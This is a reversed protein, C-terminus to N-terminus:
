AMNLNPDSKGFRKGRLKEAGNHSLTKSHDHEEVDRDAHNQKAISSVTNASRVRHGVSRPGKSRGNNDENIGHRTNGACVQVWSNGDADRDYLFNGKLTANCVDECLHPSRIKPCTDGLCKSWISSVCWPVMELLSYVLVLGHQCFDHTSKAKYPNDHGSDVRATARFDDVQARKSRKSDPHRNECKVKAHDANVIARNVRRSGKTGRQCESVPLIVPDKPNSWNCATDQSSHRVLGNEFFEPANAAERLGM